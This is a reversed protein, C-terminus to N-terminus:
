APTARRTRTHTDGAEPSDRRQDIRTATHAPYMYAHPASVCCWRLSAHSVVAVSANVSVTIRMVGHEHLLRQRSYMLLLLNRAVAHGRREMCAAAGWSHATHTLCPLTAIVQGCGSPEVAASM